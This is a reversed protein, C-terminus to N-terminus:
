YEIKRSSASSFSSSSTVTEPVKRKGLELFLERQTKPPAKPQHTGTSSNMVKDHAHICIEATLFSEDGKVVGKKNYSNADESKESNNSMRLKTMISRDRTLKASGKKEQKDSKKSSSNSNSYGDQKSSEDQHALAEANVFSNVVMTYPGSHISDLQLSYSAWTLSLRGDDEPMFDEATKIKLIGKQRAAKRAAKAEIDMQKTVAVKDKFEVLIVCNAELNEIPTQM